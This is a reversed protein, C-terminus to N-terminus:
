DLPVYTFANNGCVQPMEGFTQTTATTKTKNKNTKNQKTKNQKTKTKNRRTNKDKTKSIKKKKHTQQSKNNCNNNNQNAATTKLFRGAYMSRVQRDNAENLKEQQGEGRPHLYSAIIEHCFNLHVHLM